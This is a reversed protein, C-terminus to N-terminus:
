GGGKLGECVMKFLKLQRNGQELLHFRCVTGKDKSHHFELTQAIFRPKAKIKVKGVFCCHSGLFFPSQFCSFKLDIQKKIERTAEATQRALEKIENAVVAFGKGYKGARASEVNANLALLNIQFAINEVVAVIKKINDARRKQKNKM